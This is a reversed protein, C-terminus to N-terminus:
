VFDSHRMTWEACRRWLAAGHPLPEAGRATDIHHSNDAQM